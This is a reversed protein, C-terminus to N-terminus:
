LLTGSLILAAVSFYIVLGTVDVLTAVFPASSAAPDAGIKKMVFSLMSGSLTGWLVVGVLSLGVTFSVLLWHGGYLQFMMQWVTIRLVGISGLVIGLSLGSIIERRMVRWWDRLSIEGIAMARIIITAAQSGSNGGSSIILPVFLALVVARAIEKEFYSMATATLMEGLFLLVLWKARKKILTAFPTDIYPMDLAESGGIKHIDETAEEEAVDMADDFTVIGLLVGRTDTVSLAIRDYEQFVQGATEQDDTAKLSTFRNDMIDSIQAQPEALIIERIEPTMVQALM